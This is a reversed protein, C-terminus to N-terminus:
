PKRGWKPKKPKRNWWHEKGAPRDTKDKMMRYHRELRAVYAPDSFLYKDM